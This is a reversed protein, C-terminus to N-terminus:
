VHPAIIRGNKNTLMEKVGGRVLFIIPKASLSIEAVTGPFNDGISMVPFIDGAQIFLPLKSHPVYDTFEVSRHYKKPILKLLERPSLKTNANLSKDKDDGCHGIFCFRLNPNNNLSDVVSNIVIDVGKRMEVSGLIFINCTDKTLFERGVIKNIGKIAKNRESTQPYFHSIDIPNPIVQIKKILPDKEGIVDRILM